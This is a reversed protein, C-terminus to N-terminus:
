LTNRVFKACVSICLINGTKLDYVRLTEDASVSVVLASATHVVIGEVADTHGALVQVTEGTRVDWVRCLHDFSGTVAVTGDAAICAVFSGPQLTDSPATYEVASLDWCAM